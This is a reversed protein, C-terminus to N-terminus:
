LKSKLYRTPTLGNKIVIKHVAEGLQRTSAAVIGMQGNRVRSLVTPAAASTADDDTIDFSVCGAERAILIGAAVDWSNIGLEAYADLRGVALGALELAASGNCRVSHAGAHLLDRIIGLSTEVRTATRTAPLHYCCLADSIKTPAVGRRRIPVGNLFAGQGKIATFLERLMPAYVVGVVPERRVCFAISVCFDPMMHIFSTTGDVPDTCFFPEDDSVPADPLTEETLFGFKPLKADYKAVQTLHAIILKDCEQDIHTVFDAPSSKTDAKLGGDAAILGNRRQTINEMMLHGAQQAAAVAGALIIALQKKSPM